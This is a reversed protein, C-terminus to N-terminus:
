PFEVEYGNSDYTQNFWRWNDRCEGDHAECGTTGCAPDKGDAWRAFQAAEAARAQWKWEKM